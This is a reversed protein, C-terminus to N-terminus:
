LLRNNITVISNNYLVGKVKKIKAENYLDIVLGVNSSTGKEIRDVFEIAKIFYTEGNILLMDNIKIEGSLINGALVFGRNTISFTDQVNFKVEANKSKKKSSSLGRVCTNIKDITTQYSYGDADIELLEKLDLALVFRGKVLQIIAPTGLEFGADSNYANKLFYPEIFPELTCNVKPGNHFAVELNQDIYPLISKFIANQVERKCPFFFVISGENENLWKKKNEADEKKLQIRKRFLIENLRTLIPM